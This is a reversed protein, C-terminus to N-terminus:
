SVEIPKLDLDLNIQIEKNFFKKVIKIAKNCDEIKCEDDILNHVIKNRRQKIELVKNVTDSDWIDFFEFLYCIANIGFNRNDKLNDLRNRSIKKNGNETVVNKDDLFSSWKSYIYSEIIFWCLALCISYNKRQYESLSKTYTSMYKVYQTNTIIISFNHNLKDFVEQPVEIVGILTSVDIIEEIINEEIMYRLHAHSSYVFETKYPNQNNDNKELKIVDNYSIESIHNKIVIRYTKLASAFLIQICNLYDLIELKQLSLLDQSIELIILGSKCVRLVYNPNGEYVFEEKFILETSPNNTREITEDNPKEGAWFPSPTYFAVIKNM